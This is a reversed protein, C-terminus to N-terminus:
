ESLARRRKKLCGFLFRPELIGKEDQCGIMGTLMEIGEVGGGQAVETHRDDEISRTVAGQMAVVLLTHYLLGVDHRSHERVEMVVVGVDSEALVHEACRRVLGKGEMPKRFHTDVLVYSAGIGYKEVALMDGRSISITSVGQQTLVDAVRERSVGQLEHLTMKLGNDLLVHLAHCFVAKRHLFLLFVM